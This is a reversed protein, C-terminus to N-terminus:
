RKEAAAPAANDAHRQAATRRHTCRSHPVHPQRWPQRAEQHATSQGSAGKATRPTKGVAPGHLCTHPPPTDHANQSRRHEAHRQPSVHSTSLRASDLRRIMCASTSTAAVGLRLASRAYQLTHATRDADDAVSPTGLKAILRFSLTKYKLSETERDTARSRTRSRRARVHGATHTRNLICSCSERIEIKM